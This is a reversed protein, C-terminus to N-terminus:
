NLCFSKSHVLSWCNFLDVVLAMLPWIMCVTNLYIYIEKLNEHTIWLMMLSVLLVQFLNKNDLFCLIDENKCFKYHQPAM